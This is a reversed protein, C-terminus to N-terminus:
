DPPGELSLSKSERFSGAMFKMMGRCRSLSGKKGLEGGCTEGERVGDRLPPNKNHPALAKARRWEVSMSNKGSSDKEALEGL